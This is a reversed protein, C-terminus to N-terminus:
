ECSAVTLTWMLEQHHTSGIIACDLLKVQHDIERSMLQSPELRTMISVAFSHSLASLTLVHSFIIRFLTSHQTSCEVFTALKRCHTRCRLFQHTPLAALQILPHYDLKRKRPELM